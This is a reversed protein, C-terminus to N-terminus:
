VRGPRRWPFATAMLVGALSVLSFLGCARRLPTSGFRLEVRHHGAGVPVQIRGTAPAATAPGPEGDVRAVWGPFQFRAFELRGPAPADVEVVVDVPDGPLVRLGAAGQGLWAVPAEPLADPKHLRDVSRPLYEDRSTGPEGRALFFDLGGLDRLRLAVGSARLRPLEALAVPEFEGAAPVYVGAAPRTYGAYSALVVAGLLATLAPLARPWALSRALPEVAVALLSAAFAAFLLFRWPFQLYALLPIARYVFASIPLTLFVSGLFLLVGYVLLPTSRGRRRAGVAACGLAALVLLWHALGVQLSMDDEATGRRSGGFGWSPEVLQRPAVFHDWYVFYGRTLVDDAYVLGKEALAPGWFFLSTALGAGLLLGGWLVARSDRTHVALVLWWLGLACFGLMAAINHTLVLAALALTGVAFRLRRSGYLMGSLGWAAFPVFAFATHEGLAHRVLMDVLHYPALMYALAALCAPLPSAFDRCFLFMGLGSLILAFVLTAKLATTVSAGLLLWLETLYFPLPAYFHFLPSGYGFYTHPSWDPRLHGARLLADFSLQRFHDLEASHGYLEFDGWVRATLILGALVLLLPASWSWRSSPAAREKM